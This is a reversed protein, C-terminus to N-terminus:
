KFGLREMLDRVLGLPFGARTTHQLQIDNKPPVSNITYLETASFDLAGADGMQGIISGNEASLSIRMKYTSFQHSKLSFNFNPRIVKVAVGGPKIEPLQFAGGDYTVKISRVVLESRNAFSITIARFQYAILEFIPFCIGVIAVFLFRKNRRRKLIERSTQPKIETPTVAGTETKFRDKYRERSKKPM